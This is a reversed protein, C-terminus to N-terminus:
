LLSSKSNWERKLPLENICFRKNNKMLWNMEPNNQAIAPNPGKQNEVNKRQQTAEKEKSIINFAHKPNNSCRWDLGLADFVILLYHTFNVRMKTRAHPCWLPTFFWSGYWLFVYSTYFYQGSWCFLLFFIPFWNVATVAVFSYTSTQTM